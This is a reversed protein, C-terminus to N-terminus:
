APRSNPSRSISCSAGPQPRMQPREPRDALTDPLASRPEWRSPSSPSLAPGMLKLAWAWAGASDPAASTWQEFGIPLRDSRLEMAKSQVFHAKATDDPEDKCTKSDVAVVVIASRVAEDQRSPHTAIAAGGSHPCRVLQSTGM